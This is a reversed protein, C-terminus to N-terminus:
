FSGVKRSIQVIPGVGPDVHSYDVFSKITWFELQHNKIYEDIEDKSACPVVSTSNNCEEITFWFFRSNLSGQPSNKFNVENTDNITTFNSSGAKNQFM